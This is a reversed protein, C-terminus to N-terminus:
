EPYHVTQIDLEVIAEESIKSTLIAIIWWGWDGIMGKSMTAEMTYQKPANKLLAIDYIKSFYSGTIGSALLLTYKSFDIAPYDEPCIFYNELEESNNIIFLGIRPPADSGNIYPHCLNKWCAFYEQYNYSAALCVYYKTFPIVMPYETINLEVKSEENIKGVILAISWTEIAISDDWFIDMNLEYELASLQQLDNVTMETIWFVTKGSVLLLTHEAFDIEPYGSDTCAVYRNFDEESNIIIVKDNYALNTWHCGEDLSYEMFPINIPYKPEEGGGDPDGGSIVPNDKKCGAVLFLGTLMLCLMAVTGRKVVSPTPSFLNKKMKNM